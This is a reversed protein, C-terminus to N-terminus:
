ISILHGHRSPCFILFTMNAIRPRANDQQFIVELVEQLLPLLIHGYISVLHSKSEYRITEWVM